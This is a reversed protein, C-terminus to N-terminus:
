ICCHYVHAAARYGGYALACLPPLIIIVAGTIAGRDFFGIDFGSHQKVPKVPASAQQYFQRPDTRPSLDHVWQPAPKSMLNTDYRIDIDASLSGVPICPGVLLSSPIQNVMCIDSDIHQSLYKAEGPNSFPYLASLPGVASAITTAEVLGTVTVLRLAYASSKERLEPASGDYESINVGHLDLLHEGQLKLSKTRHKESRDKDIAGLTTRETDIVERCQALFKEKIWENVLVVDVGYPSTGRFRCKSALIARAAKSIDATRDIVAVTIQHSRHQLSDPYDLVPTTQDILRCRALFAANDVRTTVIICSANDLVKFERRFYQDVARLSSELELLVVNGAAFAAALASIISFFRTHQTPRILVVGYPIRREINDSNKAIRFEDELSKNFDVGEYMRRVANLSLGLEIDIDAETSSTDKKIATRIKELDVRLQNHLFLIQNQRYRANRGRGDSATDLLENYLRESAPQVVM